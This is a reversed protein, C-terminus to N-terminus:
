RDPDDGTIPSASEIAAVVENVRQPAVDRDLDKEEVVLYVSQRHALVRGRALEALDGLRSRESGLVVREVRKRERQSRLRGEDRPGDVGVARVNGLHQAGGGLVLARGEDLDVLVAVDEVVPSEIAHAVALLLRRVLDKQLVALRDGEPFVESRPDSAVRGVCQPDDVKSSTSSLSSTTWSACRESGLRAKASAWRASRGVPVVGTPMKRSM